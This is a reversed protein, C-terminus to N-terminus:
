TASGKRRNPTSKQERGHHEKLDVESYSDPRRKSARKVAASLNAPVPKASDLKIQGAKANKRPETMASVSIFAMARHKDEVSMKRWAQLMELEEPSPAMASADVSGIDEILTSAKVGFAKAFADVVDLSTHVSRSLVRQITSQSMGMRKRLKEQTELEPRLDMLKKLKIALIDRSEM